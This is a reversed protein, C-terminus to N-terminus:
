IDAGNKGPADYISFSAVVNALIAEARQSINSSVIVRILVEYGAHRTKEDIADLTAQEMNSLEPKKKEEEFRNMVKEFVKLLKFLDLDQLEAETEVAALRAREFLDALVEVERTLADALDLRPRHALQAM